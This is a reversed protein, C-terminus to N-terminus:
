CVDLSKNLINHLFVQLKSSIRLATRWGFPALHLLGILPAEPPTESDWRPLLPEWGRIGGERLVQLLVAWRNGKGRGPHLGAM